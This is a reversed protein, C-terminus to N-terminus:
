RHRLGPLEQHDRLRRVGGDHQVGLHRHGRDLRHPLHRLGDRVLDGFRGPGGAHGLRHHGAARGGPHGFFAAYHGKSRRIGLMYLLIFLPIAAVLASLGLNGLPNYHQLWTM